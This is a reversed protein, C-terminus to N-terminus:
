EEEITQALRAEALAYFVPSLEIGVFRRRQKLAVVGTTGSGMFPDLVLDGACSGALICPRVLAEPFTAFHQGAYRKTAIEWVNRKNRYGQQSVCPEQIAAANYYYQASKALLFLHEYAQTPRDKVKEPTANPKSWIIDARLWWGDKQLAFALLWPIGLLDKEKYGSPPRNVGKKLGGQSLVRRQGTYTQEPHKKSDDGARRAYKDGINLWCTGTPTLVIRVEQFVAALKDVYEQLTDELGMQGPVNYDRLGYYPPSTVCCQVSCAPLAQLCALADGLLVTTKEV